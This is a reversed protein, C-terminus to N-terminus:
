NDDQSFGMLKKLGPFFASSTSEPTNEVLYEDVLDKVSRASLPHFHAAWELVFGKVLAWKEEESLRKWKKKMEESKLGTYNCFELYLLERSKKLAEQKQLMQTNIKDVETAFDLALELDSMDNNNTCSIKPFKLPNKLTYISPVWNIQTNTSQSPFYNPYLLHIRLAM